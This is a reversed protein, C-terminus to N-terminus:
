WPFIRVAQSRHTDGSVAGGEKLSNSTKKAKNQCFFSRSRVIRDILSSFPFQTNRLVAPPGDVGRKWHSPAKKNKLLEVITLSTSVGM